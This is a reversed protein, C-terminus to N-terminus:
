YVGPLLRYQVKAAWGNWSAGFKDRLFGDETRCRRTVNFVMFTKWSIWSMALVMGISKTWIAFEYTYSGAGLFYAGTGLAAVISGSYGPHRVYAYPGTTILEHKERIVLQFTFFGGLTNMAAFRLVCGFLGVGWAALSSPPLRIKSVAHAPEECLFYAVQSSWPDNIYASLALLLECSTSFILFIQLTHNAGYVLFVIRLYTYDGSLAASWILESYRLYLGEQQGNFDLDKPLTYTPNQINLSEM